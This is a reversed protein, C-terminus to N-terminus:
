PFACYGGGGCKNSPAPCDSNGNPCAKTCLNGGKNPYSRCTLGAQCDSQQNPTTCQGAFAVTGGGSDGGSDGGGGGSDTGGGASDTGGGGDGTGGGGGDDGAGGADGTSGSSGGGSDSSCALFTAGAVFLAAISLYSARRLVM